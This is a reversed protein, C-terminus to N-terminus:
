GDWTEMLHIHSAGGTACMNSICQTCMQGVYDVDFRPDVKRDCPTRDHEECLSSECYCRTFRRPPIYQETDAPAAHITEDDDPHCDISVRVSRGGELPWDKFGEWGRGYQDISVEETRPDLSVTLVRGDGLDWTVEYDLSM